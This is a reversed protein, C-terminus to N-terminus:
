ISEAATVFPLDSLHAAATEAAEKSPFLGFVASGSGSMCAALAGESELRTIHERIEPVLAIAPAELANYLCAALAPLDRNAIARMAAATDPMQRPLSLASFLARTSVGEKPKTVVVHLPMGKLATLIEGIGEARCLGGQLCFPVDAGVKKAIAFLTDRDLDGYIRNMALLTAAADASGGGLGAEAPIRKVLHIEAGHGTLARYYEAASRVTNRYPLLMGSATVSVDAARSVTVTDFLDIQQMLMDLEHYGDARKARVGLTLNLKAYAREQVTNMSQTYCFAPFPPISM